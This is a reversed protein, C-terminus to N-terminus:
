HTYVVKWGNEEAKKEMARIRVSLDFMSVEVVGNVVKFTKGKVTFRKTM